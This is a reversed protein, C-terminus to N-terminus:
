ELDAIYDLDIIVLEPPNFIRFPFISGGLGRSVILTSDAIHHLGEAYKPFFGQEPSYLGGIGPIRVQGGHAHGALILDFGADAYHDKFEPRHTLLLSPLEPDLQRRLGYMAKLFARISRGSSDAKGFCRVDDVGAIQLSLGRKEFVVYEQRLVTIGILEMKRILPLPDREFVEHNGTVYYIAAINRINHLLVLVEMESYNRNDIIDGTIVILDPEAQRIKEVLRHQDKGFLKGHLDSIQVIRLRTDIDADSAAEAKEALRGITPSRLSITYRSVSIRNNGIMLFFFVIVIALISWIFGLMTIRDAEGSAKYKSM